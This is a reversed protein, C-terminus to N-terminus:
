GESPDITVLAADPYGADRVSGLALDASAADYFPGMSIRYFYNGGPQDQRSIRLPGISSLQRELIDINALSALAAVRIVYLVSLTERSKRDAPALAIEEGGPTLAPSDEVERLISTIDASRSENEAPEPTPAPARWPAPSPTAPSIRAARWRGSPPRDGLGAPGIFKVRVKAVGNMEFGLRRAAARSLDIIRNHAFPGRDNVRVVIQRGNKLNTVEVLSPMPLTPHAATMKNMDFIEGNATQRGHFQKGYWSAMGVKNYNDDIAPRYWKGNVKYPKGVKYHPSPDGRPISQRPTACAAVACVLALILLRGFM